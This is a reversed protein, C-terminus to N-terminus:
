HPPTVCRHSCASARLHQLQVVKISSLQSQIITRNICVETFMGLGPVAFSLVWALGRGCRSLPAERFATGSPNRAEMELEMAMM